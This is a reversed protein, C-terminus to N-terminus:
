FIVGSVLIINSFPTCEGTRICAKVKRAEKKLEAQSIVQPEIGPFMEVMKQFMKPSNDLTEQAIIIDEVKLEKLVVRLVDLFGPLGPELALDIRKADEPIPFASGCIMIRDRHGMGAIVASIEKNMIGIKKM